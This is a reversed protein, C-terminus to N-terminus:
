SVLYHFLSIDTIRSLLLLQSLGPTQYCVILGDGVLVSIAFVGKRFLNIPDAERAFFAAPGGPRNAFTIFADIMIKISGVVHMTGLTFLVFTVVLMTKNIQPYPRFTM